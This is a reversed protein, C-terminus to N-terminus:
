LLDKESFNHKSVQFMFPHNCLKRLQMITNMLAKAGGKPGQKGGAGSDTLMIGKEKFIFKADNSPFAHLFPM